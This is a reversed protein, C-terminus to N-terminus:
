GTSSGGPFRAGALAAGSVVIVLIVSAPGQGRALLRQLFPSHRGALRILRRTFWRYVALVLLTPVVMTIIGILWPPVWASISYIFTM